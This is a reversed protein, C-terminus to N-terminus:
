RQRRQRRPGGMTPWTVHYLLLKNKKKAFPLCPPTFLSRQCCFRGASGVGVSRRSRAPTPTNSHAPSSLRVGVARWADCMATYTSAVFARCCFCKGGFKETKHTNAATVNSLYLTNCACPERAVAGSVVVVVMSGTLLRPRGTNASLRRQFVYVIRRTSRGGGSGLRQACLTYTNPSLTADGAADVIKNPARDPVFLFTSNAMPM